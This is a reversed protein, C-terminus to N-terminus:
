YAIEVTAQKIEENTLNDIMFHAVDARSIKLCNKLFRNIAVRYNGTLPGDTLQPPRMITWEVNSKKVTSEMIRQDAYMYKLLKQVIYKAAFRAYWPIVPSIELASASICYIRKVHYQEMAMLLNANGQSYLTTPKDNFMGSNVGLASVVVDQNEMEPVFTELRMIDGTVIHLNPHVLPLKAPNRVLATVHHGAQLAQELAHRGIGGNAGAIFINM